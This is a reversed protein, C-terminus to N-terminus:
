IRHDGRRPALRGRDDRQGRHRDQRLRPPNILIDGGSVKQSDIRCSLGSLRDACVGLFGEAECKLVSSGRFGRTEKIQGFVPEVITKRQAYLARGSATLLKARMREKATAPSPTSEASAPAGASAAPAVHHRQRETAIYPDFGEQELAAVASASFYGTDLAAPILPRAGTEDAVPAIGAADLQGRTAQAM